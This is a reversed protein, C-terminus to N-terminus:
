KALPSHDECNPRGHQQVEPSRDYHTKQPSSDVDMGQPKGINDQPEQRVAIHTISDEHDDHGKNSVEAVTALQSEDERKAAQSTSKEAENGPTGHFSPDNTDVASPCISASRCKGKACHEPVRVVESM